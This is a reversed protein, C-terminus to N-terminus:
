TIFDLDWSYYRSTVIDWQFVADLSVTVTFVRLRHFDGFVLCHKVVLVSSLGRLKM